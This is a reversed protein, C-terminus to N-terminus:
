SIRQLVDDGSRFMVGSSSGSQWGLAVGAGHDGTALWYDGSRIDTIEARTGDDLLVVDGAALDAANVSEAGLLAALAEAGDQEECQGCWDNGDDPKPQGCRGCVDLCPGSIWGGHDPLVVEPRARPCFSAPLHDEAM